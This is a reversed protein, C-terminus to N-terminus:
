DAQLGLLVRIERDSILKRKSPAVGTYLMDKVSQVANTAMKDSALKSLGTAVPLVVAQPNVMVAFINLGAMLGNGTPALKGILRLANESMNGRVFLEMVELEEKDFQAAKKPNVIINKLAQRYKNVINGGSGTSLTELETKKMLDEFMKVKRYKRNQARAIKYKDGAPTGILNKPMTDMAEDVKDIIFDIKPDYAFSGMGKGVKYIEQLETKLADLQAVNFKENARSSLIKLADDVHTHVGPTYGLFLEDKFMSDTINKNLNAMDVDIDAGAKKADLYAADKIAKQKEVSPKEKFSKSLSQVTKNGSSFAMPSAFAGIVRAVPEISTGETAQGAAESGVGAVASSTLPKVGLGAAQTAAGARQVKDLNTLAGLGKTVKGATGLAGAGGLFESATGVYKGATTKGRYDLEDDLGVAEAAGRLARGTSTDFVPLDEGEYLGTLQGLEQFGRIVGRGALEPFELAGVAGRGLGGVASRLVDETVGVREQSPKTEVNSLMQQLASWAEKENTATVDYTDKGVTIEFDPM